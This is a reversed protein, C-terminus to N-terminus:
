ISFYYISEFLFFIPLKSKFYSKMGTFTVEDQCSLYACACDRIMPWGLASPTGCNLGAMVTSPNGEIVSIYFFVKKQYSMHRQPM